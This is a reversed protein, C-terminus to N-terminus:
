SLEDIHKKLVQKWPEIELGYDEKIKKCSLASFAPRNARSKYTKYSTKILECKQPLIKKELALAQIEAAFEYWSCAGSNAFHYTGYKPKDKGVIAIIAEALARARTPSGFQDAVVEIKDQKKMLELMKKVFNSGFQGYLRSTRLIVHEALVSRVLEEGKAKTRGYINLPNTKSDEKYPSQSTGDFVYDTSVHLLCAGLYAAIVALNLPGRANISACLEEEEEAREVETYAACNIIWSLTKFAARLAARDGDPMARDRMGTGASKDPFARDGSAAKDGNAEARDRRGSACASRDPMARDRDDDATGASLGLFKNLVAMKTIDVKSGSAIFEINRSKLLWFLEKGLMGDKGVLWIM